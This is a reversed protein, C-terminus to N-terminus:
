CGSAPVGRGDRGEAVKLYVQNSEHLYDNKAKSLRNTRSSMPPEQTISLGNFGFLRPSARDTAPM